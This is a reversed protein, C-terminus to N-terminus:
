ANIVNPGSLNAKSTTDGIYVDLFLASQLLPLVKYARMYM